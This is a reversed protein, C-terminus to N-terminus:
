QQKTCTGALIRHLTKDFFYTNNYINSHHSTQTEHSFIPGTSIRIDHCASQFLM